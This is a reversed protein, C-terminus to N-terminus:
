SPSNRSYFGVETPITGGLQNEHLSLYTLHTLLGIETPITGGLQNEYLSLYALEVVRGLDSPISGLLQNMSLDLLALQTLERLTSPIYSNLENVSLNLSIIQSLLGIQTPIDTGNTTVDFVTKNRCKHLKPTNLFECAVRLQQVKTASSSMGCNGAGCHVSIGVGASVMVVVALLVMTRWFVVSRQKTVVVSCAIEADVVVAVAEAHIDPTEEEQNNHIAIVATTTSSSHNTGNEVPPVTEAIASRTISYDSETIVLHEENHFQMTGDVATTTVTDDLTHFTTLKTSPANPRTGTLSWGFDQLTNKGDILQGNPLQLTTPFPNWSLPGNTGDKPSTDDNDNTAITSRLTNKCDM